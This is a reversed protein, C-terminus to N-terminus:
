SYVMRHIKFMALVLQRFKEITIKLEKIHEQIGDLELLKMYNQICHFKEIASVMPVLFTNAILLHGSHLPKVKNEFSIVNLSLYEWYVRLPISHSLFNM